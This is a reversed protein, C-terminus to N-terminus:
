KFQPLYAAEAAFMENVMESIEDLTLLAESLPDLAIAMRAADRDGTLAAKVALEQVNINSRNLAACQPPLDGVHCPHIGTKDVLCPVEVCCGDPLNTVLGTNAVNGNVSTPVNTEMANIIQMGYEHSRGIEIPVEGAIQRRVEEYHPQWGNKCVQLYDWRPTVFKQVLEPRKRFYPVYESMHHSSETVFYGFHRMIEWRVKEQAYINPNAMARWLLPYADEGKWEFRLFWSMHNIGAVWYSVESMPAGLFSALREATGQVSHCLGVNRIKTATNMAWCNMAMPNAYNILLADPCCREMDHCIDVLVPITRLGRFVGGPGLSDGVTQDIGYRNPIAIDLEFAELGGVQIMTIVYNAGDLAEQRDTTAEIRTPLGEQAVMKEALSAILQLRSQDIDMLFVTSEALQPYSLMDALLRRAFVVSGAGIMAIKAM